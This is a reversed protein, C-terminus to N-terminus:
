VARRQSDRESDLPVRVHITTGGMAKSEITITGNVLRVREQMSTLGLGRSQKAVEVDFGTGSDSVVLHVENSHEEIQVETHRVGSHKIANNLAEQLVRFLALGVEFPLVRSVDSKFDIVVRQHEAFEKCWSRIGSVIGLYELKSSHLDHSLAQVDNSLEITQKRLDQVRSQVESPNQQLQELEVALMALRQNIDDHLERGIRAREQEQAAILKRTMGALAEEARKLATIDAVMGIVRLMRGEPDFFARGSSKLWVLAGDSGRVRYIVEATPNEPTLGAITAIFKPRDDPHITSVFQQHSLRLPETASLVRVHEPSRVVADTAVDWEFSYMKGAQAALCFRQESERLAEEAQKSQTIDLSIGLMREPEGNAAYHYRGRSRLWHTTGDRWVVRFDQTFEEHTDKAVRIADRLHERDDEHVHDWFEQRSGLTEEPAMGLQAHAKGFWVNRDTKLDYDWGGVSGSDIALNLRENARALAEEALKRDTIDINVGAMRSPQGSENMYVQWRGAIWHVSGDPWVVRWEGKTPLGTKLAWDDLAIVGARDDPHVLNEFATQTGGFGGPPLGYMAELESTWTNVATQINWEFTGIRAAQQALRLREESARLAEEARQRETIDRIVVTFFKKGGSEVQSVSAEIPFEEGTARLGWLTGLGHLTRKTMGSEAFRRVRMSHGARFREPIFREVSSGIAENAPCVFVKEAAANFLRIRQSDDIAIIADMASGIVGALLDPSDPLGTDLQEFNSLDSQM